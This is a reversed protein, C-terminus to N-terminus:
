QGLFAIKAVLNAKMAAGLDSLMIVLDISGPSTTFYHALVYNNWGNYNPTPPMAINSALSPANTAFNGPLALTLPADPKNRFYVNVMALAPLGFKYNRIDLSFKFWFGSVMPTLSVAQSQIFAPDFCPYPSFPNPFGTGDPVTTPCAPGEVTDYLSAAPPTIPTPMNTTPVDAAVIAPPRSLDLSPAVPFSMGLKLPYEQPIDAFLPALDASQVNIVRVDSLTRTNVIMSINGVAETAKSLLVNHKGLNTMAGLESNKSSIATNENTVLEGTKSIIAGIKPGLAVIPDIATTYMPSGTQIIQTVASAAFTFDMKGRSYVRSIQNIGNNVLNNMLNINSGRSKQMYLDFTDMNEKTRQLTQELPTCVAQVTANFLKMQEAGLSQLKTLYAQYNGKVQNVVATFSTINRQIMDTILAVARSKIGAYDRLNISATDNLKKLKDTILSANTTYNTQLPITTQLLTNARTQMGKFESTFTPLNDRLLQVDNVVNNDNNTIKFAILALFALNRDYEKTFNAFQDFHYPSIKGVLFSTKFWGPDNVAVVEKVWSKIAAIAKPFNEASTGTPAAAGSGFNTTVTSNVGKIASALDKLFGPLTTSAAPYPKTTGALPNVLTTTTTTTQSSVFVAVMMITAFRLCFFAM